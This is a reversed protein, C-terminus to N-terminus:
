CTLLGSIGIEVVLMENDANDSSFEDLLKMLRNGASIETDNNYNNMVNNYTEYSIKMETRERIGVSCGLRAHM